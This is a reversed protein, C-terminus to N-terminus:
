RNIIVSKYLDKMKKKLNLFLATCNRFTEGGSSKKM